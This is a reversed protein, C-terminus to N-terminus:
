IAIPNTWAWRGQADVCEVRFYGGFPQDTSLLGAQKSKALLDQMNQRTGLREIQHTAQTILGRDLDRFTQCFWPGSVFEICRVPTTKVTVEGGRIQLDTIQPGTTAYFWGHRIADLLAQRTLAVSRVVVWARPVVPSPVGHADDVAIGWLMKGATLADDWHVTSLYRGGACYNCIEIGALHELEMLRTSHLGSINPHSLFPIGGMDVVCDIASQIPPPIFDDWRDGTKEGPLDPVDLALLECGWSGNCLVQIEAGPIVIFDEEDAREVPIDGIVNHDTIALFDYGVAKYGSAMEEASASGDSLTTHSHLNGKYWNGKQSFPNGDM